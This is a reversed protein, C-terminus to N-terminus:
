LSSGHCHKYKKGSGCPCPNNRPTDGWTAPDAANFSAKRVPQQQAAQSREPANSGEVVEAMAMEPSPHQAVLQSQDPSRPMMSEPSAVRIEMRMLTQTVQERLSDLMAGFLDFAERKFENLPDRQGFSRLGIGQRLHDLTHLHEKWSQDLLQILVSKEAMRM